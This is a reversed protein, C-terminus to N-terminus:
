FKIMYFLETEGMELRMDWKGRKRKGKSSEEGQKFLLRFAKGALIQIMVGHLQNYASGLNLM